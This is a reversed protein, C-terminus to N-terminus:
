KDDATEGGEEQDDYVEDDVIEGGKEKDCNKKLTYRNYEIYEQRWYYSTHPSGEIM